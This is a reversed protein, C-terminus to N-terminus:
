VVDSSKSKKTNCQVFFNRATTHAKLTAHKPIIQDNRFFLLFLRFKGRGQEEEEEEGKGRRVM